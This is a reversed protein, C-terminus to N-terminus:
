VWITETSGDTFTIIKDGTFPSSPSKIMKKIIGQERWKSLTKVCVISNNQNIYNKAEDILKGKSEEPKM